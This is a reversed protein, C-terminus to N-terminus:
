RSAHALVDRVLARIILFVMGFLLFTVIIFTMRYPYVAYDPVTPNSVRDLYLHQRMADVRAAELMNLASVFTKEAFERELMLRDYEAILPAMSNGTGALQQREVNIQDELAKIRLQMSSVQPSDPSSKLIAALNANTEAEELSLRAITQLVEQSVRTPDIVLERNRFATVKGQEALARIKSATVEQQATDIADREARQNLRNILAEANRLLADAIKQADEPRFAQVDLTCIGTSDDYSVSIFRLFHKYLHEENASWFWGPYRWVFDAESRNLFELLGAQTELQQMADRSQIYELVAYADDSSRVISSGQMMSAIQDMSQSSPGRVVFKAESEYRPAAILGFYLAALLTPLGVILLLALHRRVLAHIRSVPKPIVLPAESGDPLLRVVEVPQVFLEPNEPRVM